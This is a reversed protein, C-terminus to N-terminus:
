FVKWGSMANQTDPTQQVVGARIRYSAGASFGAVQGIAQQGATYSTSTARGGGATVADPSARYNASARYWAYGLSSVLFLIGAICFARKM